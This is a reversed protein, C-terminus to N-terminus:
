RPDNWMEAPPPPPPPPPPMVPPIGLVDAAHTEEVALRLAELDTLLGDIDNSLQPMSPAVEAQASLELVRAVAEGLRADLLRLRNVTDEIVEDMRGATARQSQLATVTSAVLPDDPDATQRATADRLATDLAATDIAARAEALVRGGSAIRRCEAVGADIRTTLEHVADRLPGPHVRAACRGFRERAAEASRVFGAWPEVEAAPRTPAAQVPPYPWPPPYGRQPTGPPYPWVAAPRGYTAPIVPQPQYPIHRPQRAQLAVSHVLGGLMGLFALLAFTDQWFWGDSPSGDASEPSLNTFVFFLVTCAGYAAAWLKWDRRRYRIGIQLFGAGVLLGCSLFGWLLWLGSESWAPAESRRPALAGASAYDDV